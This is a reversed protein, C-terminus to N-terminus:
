GSIPTTLGSELRGVSGRGKSARSASRHADRPRFEARQRLQEAARPLSTKTTIKVLICIKRMYFELLLTFHFLSDDSFTGWLNMKEFMALQHTVRFLVGASGSFFPERPPGAFPANEVLILSM